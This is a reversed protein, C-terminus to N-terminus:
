LIVRGPPVCGRRWRQRGAQPATLGRLSESRLFDAAQRSFSGCLEFLVFEASGAEGGGKGSSGIVYFMVSHNHRLRLRRAVLDLKVVLKNRLNLNHSSRM